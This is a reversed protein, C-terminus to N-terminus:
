LQGLRFGAAGAMAARHDARADPDPVIWAGTSVGVPLAPATARVARMLAGVAEAALTERGQDDRVHAHVADAGQDRCAAVTRAQEAPTAPLGSHDAPSRAGNIAAELFTM